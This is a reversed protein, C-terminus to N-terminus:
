PSIPDSAPLTEELAEDLQSDSVHREDVGQNQECHCASSPCPQGGPHLDACAQCCYRKGDREICHESSASCTCGPCACQPASPDNAM